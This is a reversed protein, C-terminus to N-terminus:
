RKIERIRINRFMVFSFQDHLQLGIPGTKSREPDGPIVALKGSEGGKKIGEPTDLHLGGKLKESEASHCKYCRDVLVPRIKKEFFEVGAPDPAAARADLALALLFPLAWTLITPRNTVVLSNLLDAAPM